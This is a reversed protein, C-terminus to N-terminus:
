RDSDPDEQNLITPDFPRDHSAALPQAKSADLVDPDFPRAGQQSGPAPPATGTGGSDLVSPDFPRDDHHEPRAVTRAAASGGLVSVDFSREGSQVESIPNQVQLSRDFLRPCTSWIGLTDLAILAEQADGYIEAMLSRNTITKVGTPALREIARRATDVKTLFPQVRTGLRAKYNGNLENTTQATELVDAVNATINSIGRVTGDLFAGSIMDAAPWTIHPAIKAILAKDTVSSKYGPVGLIDDANELGEAVSRYMGTLFETMAAMNVSDTRIHPDASLMSDTIAEALLYRNRAVILHAAGVQYRENSSLLHRGQIALDADIDSMAVNVENDANMVRFPQLDAAMQEVSNVEHNGFRDKFM